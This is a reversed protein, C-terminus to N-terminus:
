IVTKCVKRGHKVYFRLRNKTKRYMAIPKNFTWDEVWRKHIACRNIIGFGMAMLSATDYHYNCWSIKAWVDEYLVIQRGLHGKSYSGCIDWLYERLIKDGWADYLESWEV